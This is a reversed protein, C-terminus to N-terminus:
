SSELVDCAITRISLFMVVGLCGIKPFILHRGVSVDVNVFGVTVLFRRTWFMGFEGFFQVDM